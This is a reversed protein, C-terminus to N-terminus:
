VRFFDQGYLTGCNPCNVTSRGPLPASVINACRLCEASAAFKAWKVPAPGRGIGNPLCVECIAEVSVLANGCSCRIM